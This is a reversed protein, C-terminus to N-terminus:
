FMKLSNLTKYIISIKLKESFLSQLSLVITDPFSEKQGFSVRM